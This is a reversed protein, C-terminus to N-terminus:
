SPAGEGGALGGARREEMAPFPSQPDERGLNPSPVVVTSCKHGVVKEAGAMFVGKFEEVVQDVQDQTAAGTGLHKWRGACQALPTEVEALFKDRLAPDSTLKNLDWKWKRASNPEQRWEADVTISVVM